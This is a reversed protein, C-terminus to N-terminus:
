LPAEKPVRHYAYGAQRARRHRWAQQSLRTSERGLRDLEWKSLDTDRAGQALQALRARSQLLADITGMMSPLDDPPCILGNEGDRLVERLAPLDCAVVPCGGALSQVIVRPLGENTSCLVSLDARAILAEPDTRHGLMHVHAALGMHRILTAISDQEPGKGALYVRLDPHRALLPPLARLFEAHRKRPEFAALMLLVPGQIALDAAPLATRFRRLDMGSHVTAVEQTIGARLYAQGTAESVAIYSDSFLAALHELGIFLARKVPSPTEFSVIHLGRLVAMRPCAPAALAGLVGAKSQHTHLVDADLARFLTRLALVARLDALPAVPHRMDPLTHFSLLHGYDEAWSPDPDPGHVIHVEHGHLAQWVATAITNEESGAHLLRTLIHIIKM